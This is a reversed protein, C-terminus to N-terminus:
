ATDKEFVYVYEPCRLEGNSGAKMSSAEVEVHFLLTLGFSCLTTVHWGSVLQRKGNRIHDKINLVFRGRPRLVRTAEDWAEEHFARYKEGWQLRGSNGPSLKRGLDHTYSRRTAADRADHADAMRNGYTPSTCIADFDEDDFHLSLADGIETSSHMQAWEPELEIGITDFGHDQLEHILGTGAFPDLVWRYGALVERFVDLLQASYRAPHSVGNGLDPKSVGPLAGVELL